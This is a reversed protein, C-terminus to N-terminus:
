ENEQENSWSSGRMQQGLRKSGEVDVKISSAKCKQLWRLNALMKARTEPHRVAEAYPHERYLCIHLFVTLM